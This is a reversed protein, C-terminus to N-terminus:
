VNIRKIYSRMHRGVFVDTFLAWLGFAASLWVLSRIFSKLDNEDEENNSKSINDTLFFKNINRVIDIALM